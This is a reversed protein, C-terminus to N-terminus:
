HSDSYKMERLTYGRGENSPGLQVSLLVGDDLKLTTLCASVQALYADTFEAQLMAFLSRFGRSEFRGAQVDAEGRLKRLIDVFMTLIDIAGHLISSPYNSAFAWHSKRKGQIAEAALGYCRRVVQPNAIADRLIE